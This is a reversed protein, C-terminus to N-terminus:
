GPISKPRPKTTRGSPKKPPDCVVLETTEPKVTKPKKDRDIMKQPDVCKGNRDQISFHLHPGTSRGTNGSRAILDGPKVRKGVGVLIRSLHLYWSHRGDPHRIVIHIGSATRSSHVTRIVTGRATAYIPQGTPMPYDTGPLNSGRKKHAEFDSSVTKTKCPRVYDIRIM